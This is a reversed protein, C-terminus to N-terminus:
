AALRLRESRRDIAELVLGTTVAYVAHRVANIALEKGEMETPPPAVDLAPPMALASGWVAGFHM